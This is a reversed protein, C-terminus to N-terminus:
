GCPDVQLRDHFEHITGAKWEAQAAYRRCLALLLLPPAATGIPSIRRLLTLSFSARSSTTADIVTRSTRLTSIARMARVAPNSVRYTSRSCELKESSVQPWIQMAASSAPIAGNTRTGALVGFYM